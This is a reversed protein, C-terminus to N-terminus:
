LISLLYNQIHEKFHPSVMAMRLIEYWGFDFSISSPLSLMGGKGGSWRGGGSPFTSIPRGISGGGISGISRGLSGGGIPGTSIPGGISGGLSGGRIPGGFSGGNDEDGFSGGLSGGGIVGGGGIFGGGGKRGTVYAFRSALNVFTFCSHVRQAQFRTIM